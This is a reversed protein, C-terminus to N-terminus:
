NLNIKKCIDNYQINKSYQSFETSSFYRSLNASSVGTSDIIDSFLLSKNTECYNILKAKDNADIPLCNACVDNDGIFFCGCRNCKKM